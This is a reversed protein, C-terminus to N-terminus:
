ATLTHMDFCIAFFMGSCYMIGTCLTGILPLKSSAGPQTNYVPDDLYAALLVGFSNPFGWVM